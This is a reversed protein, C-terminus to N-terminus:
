LYMDIQPVHMSHHIDEFKSDNGMILHDTSQLYTLYRNTVASISKKLCYILINFDLSSVIALVANTILSM